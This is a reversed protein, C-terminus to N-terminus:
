NLVLPHDMQNVCGDDEKHTDFAAPMMVSQRSHTLSRLCRM